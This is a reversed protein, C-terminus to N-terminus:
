RARRIRWPGLAAGSQRWREVHARRADAMFLRIMLPNFVVDVVFSLTVLQEFAFWFDEATSSFCIRYPVM